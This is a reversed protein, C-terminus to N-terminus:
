HEQARAYVVFTDCAIVEVTCRQFHRCDPSPGDQSAKLQELSTALSEAIQRRPIRDPM